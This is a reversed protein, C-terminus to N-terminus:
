LTEAAQLVAELHEQPVQVEGRYMYEVVLDLEAAKMDKLIVIPHQCSNDAFLQQFYPSCASLVM